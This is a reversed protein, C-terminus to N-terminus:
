AGHRLAEIEALEDAYREYTEALARAAPGPEPEPKATINRWPDTEAFPGLAYDPLDYLPKIHLTGPEPKDDEGPWDWAAEDDADEGTWNRAMAVM